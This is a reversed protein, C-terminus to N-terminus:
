ASTTGPEEATGLTDDAVHNESADPTEGATPPALALLESLRTELLVPDGIEAAPNLEYRNRRGARSRRIYGARQLDSLIRYASRVTIEAARALEEVTAEPAQAIALLMQGHSTVLTWSRLGSLDVNRV